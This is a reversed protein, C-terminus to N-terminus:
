APRVGVGWIISARAAIIANRVTMQCHQSKMDPIKLTMTKM